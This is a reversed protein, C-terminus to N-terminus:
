AAVPRGAGMRIVGELEKRRDKTDLSILGVYYLVRSFFLIKRKSLTM